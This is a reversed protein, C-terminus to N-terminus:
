VGVGFEPVTGNYRPPNRPLLRKTRRQKALMAALEAIPSAQGANGALNNMETPDRNINYVEIEDPLPTTKVTTTTVHTGAQSPIGNTLSLVDKTNPTSWFQPNDFYRSYKWKEMAGLTGTPLMAIVTEVHSPQIVPAYMAGSPAFNNPGRTVQDDTMFYQPKNYRTAPKKGLLMPSLDTGVLPRVQTHTRKLRRRLARQDLGALGLMTPLLDAHSTLIDTAQPNPFMAPNSIIFPVKLMEDYACHWKQHLGGHSGLLEGHDSLFIIVTDRQFKKDSRKVERLVRGIHKDVEAQLQYYFRQYPKNNQTPQFAQSYVDRYSAQASPKTSLSESASADFRSDFLNHPVTSGNLQQALYFNKMALTLDGWLTIDHPNIFSTVLLWPKDSQRLRRLEQAGWRAYVEDRGRGGPASSGSNLPNAGHPEPGIWGTFGYNELMGAELYKNELEKVPRGQDSYSVLENHTGPLFLDDESVHWKGKYLTEYGAARFYHGMTPVTSPDLWYMDEEIATKAAGNTQSVGHLSPYQGTFISTRSPTCAVSMIHHNQFDYGRRRLSNINKLNKNRWSQLETSEYVPATRMEDVMVILFNPRRRLSRRPAVDGRPEPAAQAQGATAGAVVAAGASLGALRLFGRRGLGDLVGAEKVAREQPDEIM